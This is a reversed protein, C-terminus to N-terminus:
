KEKNLKKALTRFNVHVYNNIGVAKQLWLISGNGDMSYVMVRGHEGSTYDFFVEDSKANQLADSFEEVSVLKFKYPYNKRIDEEDRSRLHMQNVYLTKIKISTDPVNAGDTSGKLLFGQLNKLDKLLGAELTFEHMRTSIYIANGTVQGSKNIVPGLLSFRTLGKDEILAGDMKLLVGSLKLSLFIYGPKGRYNELESLSIVKYPTLKWSKQMASELESIELAAKNGPNVVAILTKGNYEIPQNAPVLGVYQGFATNCFFLITLIFLSKLQLM